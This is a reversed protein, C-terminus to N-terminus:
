LVERKCQLYQVSAHRAESRLSVVNMPVLNVYTSSCTDKWSGDPVM